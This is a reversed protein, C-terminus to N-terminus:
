VSLIFCFITAYYESAPAKYDRVSSTLLGLLSKSQVPVHCNNRPKLQLCQTKMDQILPKLLRQITQANLFDAEYLM